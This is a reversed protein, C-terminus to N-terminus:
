LTFNGFFRYPLRGATVCSATLPRMESEYPYQIPWFLVLISSKGSLCPSVSFFICIHRKNRERPYVHGFYVGRNRSPISQSPPTTVFEEEQRGQAQRLACPIAGLLRRPIKPRTSGFSFGAVNKEQNIDERHRRAQETTFGEREAMFRHM